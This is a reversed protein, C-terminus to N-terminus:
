SKQIIENNSLRIFSVYCVSKHNCLKRVQICDVDPLSEILEKAKKTALVIMETDAKFRVLSGNEKLISYYVGKPITDLEEPTTM